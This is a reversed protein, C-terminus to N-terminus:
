NSLNMFIPIYNNDMTPLEQKIIRRGQTKFSFDYIISAVAYWIHFNLRVNISKYTINDKRDTVSIDNRSFIVKNVNYYNQGNYNERVFKVADTKYQSYRPDVITKLYDILSQGGLESNLISNVVEQDQCLNGDLYITLYSGLIKHQLVFPMRVVKDLNDEIEILEIAEEKAQAIALPSFSPAVIIGRQARLDKIKTVLKSIEPTGVPNKWNKCEIIFKAGYKSDPNIEILLDIEHRGDLVIAKPTIRIKNEDVLTKYERELVWEELFKVAEELIDGKRKAKM